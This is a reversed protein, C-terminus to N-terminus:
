DQAFSKSLTNVRTGRRETHEQAKKNQLPRGTGDQRLEPLRLEAPHEVVGHVGDVKVQWIVELHLFM